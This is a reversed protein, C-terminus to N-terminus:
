FGETIKPITTLEYLAIRGQGSTKNKLSSRGTFIVDYGAWLFLTIPFLTQLMISTAAPFFQVGDAIMDSKFHSSDSATGSATIGDHVQM